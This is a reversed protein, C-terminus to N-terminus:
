ANDLKWAVVLEHLAADSALCLIKDGVLIQTHGRPIILEGNRTVSIVVVDKPMTIDSLTKEHHPFHDPIMIESISVDGSLSLLQRIKDTEIERELLRAISDTSSVAIDVGLQKLIGENKPNNVRSITKKVNYVKKALQCAILNSEDRGSVSVFADCDECHAGSLTELTTGDGVLVSIDLSNALKEAAFEDKEIVVPQHGHELLTKALYFGVKGGGVICVKM